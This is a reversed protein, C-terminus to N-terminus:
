HLSVKHTNIEDAPSVTEGDFQATLIADRWSAQTSLKDLLLCTARLMNRGLKLNLSSNSPLIFDISLADDFEGTNSGVEGTFKEGNKMLSISADIVLLPDFGIPFQIGAEYSRAGANATNLAETFAEKEFEDIAKKANPSHDQQMMKALLHSSATLIFLTLRRTLWLRYESQDQTNFRLLIRDENGLYSANIQKITMTNKLRM